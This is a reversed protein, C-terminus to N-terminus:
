RGYEDFESLGAAPAVRRERLRKAVVCALGALAGDASQTPQFGTTIDVLQDLGQLTRTAQLNVASRNSSSDSMSSGDVRKVAQAELSRATGTVHPREPLQPVGQAEIIQPQSPAARADFDIHQRAHAGHDEVAQTVRAALQAQQASQVRQRRRQMETEISRALARVLLCVRVDLEGRMLM